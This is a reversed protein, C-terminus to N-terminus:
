VYLVVLPLGTESSAVPLPQESKAIGAGTPTYSIAHSHAYLYPFQHTHTPSPPLQDAGGAASLYSKQAATADPGGTSQVATALSVGSPLNTPNGISTVKDYTVGTVDNWTLKSIRVALQTGNLRPYHAVRNAASTFVSLVAQPTVPLTVTADGSANTSVTTSYYRVWQAALVALSTDPNDYWNTKGTIAKIRNAFWDLFQRLTGVNGTPAVTPDITRNGLETAYANGEIREFQEPTLVDDATYSTKPNQWGQPATGPM